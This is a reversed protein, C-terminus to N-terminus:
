GARPVGTRWLSVWAIPGEAGARSERARTTAPRMQLSRDNLLRPLLHDLDPDDADHRRTGIDHVVVRIDPQRESKGVIPPGAGPIVKEEHNPSQFIAGRRLRGLDIEVEEELVPALTNADRAEADGAMLRERLPGVRGSRGVVAQNAAM